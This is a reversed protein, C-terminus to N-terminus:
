NDKSDKKNKEKQEKQEEQIIDEIPDTKLSAIAAAQANNIKAILYPSQHKVSTNISIMTEHREDILEATLDKGELNLVMIAESLPM